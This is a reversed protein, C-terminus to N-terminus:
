RAREHPETRREQAASERKLVKGDDAVHVYSTRGNKTFEAEYFTRGHETEKEIEGLKAGATEKEITAKVAQPVQDLSLRTEHTEACWAGVPVVLLGALVWSTRM